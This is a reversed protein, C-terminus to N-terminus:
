TVQGLDCLPYSDSSPNLGRSDLEPTWVTYQRDPMFVQMGQLNHTSM